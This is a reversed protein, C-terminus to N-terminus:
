PRIDGGLMIAVWSGRIAIATTERVLGNAGLIRRVRETSLTPCAALEFGFRGDGVAGADEAHGPTPAAAVGLLGLGAM